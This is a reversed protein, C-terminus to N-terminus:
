VLDFWLGGGRYVFPLTKPEKQGSGLHLGGFWDTEWRSVVRREHAM